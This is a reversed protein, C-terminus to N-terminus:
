TVNKKVCWIGTVYEVEVIV